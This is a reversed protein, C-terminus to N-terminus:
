ACRATMRCTAARRSSICVTSSGPNGVVRKLVEAVKGRVETKDDFRRKRDGMERRLNRTDFWFRTTNQIKDGSSNLYRLGDALRNLADM